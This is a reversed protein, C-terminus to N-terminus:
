CHVLCVLAARYASVTVSLIRANEREVRRALKRASEHTRITGLGAWARM